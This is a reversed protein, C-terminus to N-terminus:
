SSGAVKHAALVVVHVSLRIASDEGVRSTRAPSTSALASHSRTQVGRTQQARATCHVEPRRRPRVAWTEAQAHYPIWVLWYEDSSKMMKPLNSLNDIAHKKFPWAIWGRGKVIRADDIPEGRVTAHIHVIVEAKAERARKLTGSIRTDSM